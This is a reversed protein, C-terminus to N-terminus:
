AREAVVIDQHSLGDTRGCWSGYRVPERVLLAQDRYVARVHPEAFAVLHDPDGPRITRCTQDGHEFALESNGRAILAESEPNLLFFTALCTGGPRLVRSIESVYQAVAVRDMHTFVSTILAFDFASDEYPFRLEHAADAGDPHYRQNRVDVQRFGFAPHRPAIHAQCWRIAAPVVDFGEYRGDAGLYGSLPIAMRGVGCGVDLVAAGPRLDALTVAYELFEDGVAAFEGRGVYHLWRPPQLPERRGLVVDLAELPLFAARRLAMKRATSLRRYRRALPRLPARLITARRSTPHSSTM